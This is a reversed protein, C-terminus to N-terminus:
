RTEIGGLHKRILREIAGFGIRLTLDDFSHLSILDDLTCGRGPLAVITPTSYGLPVRSVGSSPDDSQTPRDPAHIGSFRLFPASPDLSESYKSRHSRPINMRCHVM